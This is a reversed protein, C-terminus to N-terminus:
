IRNFTISTKLQDQENYCIMKSSNLSVIIFTEFVSVHVEEGSVKMQLVNKELNWSYSKGDGNEDYFRGTYDSQYEYYLGEDPTFWTGYLLKEDFDSYEEDSKSCSFLLASIGILALCFYCFKKM